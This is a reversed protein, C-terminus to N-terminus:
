RKNTIRRCWAAIRSIWDEVQADSVRTSPWRYVFAYCLWILLFTIAAGLIVDSPFHGGAMVRMLGVFGMAALSVGIAVARWSSSLLMSPVLAWTVIAVDGSVFSCNKPCDGKPNWWAGFHEPGGFEAVNLPRPRGWHEKLGVNVILGPILILTFIVFIAARVPILMRRRPFLFRLVVVLLAPIVLLLAGKVVLNQLQPFPPAIYWALMRGSPDKIPGAYFIRAIDLDLSPFFGFLGAAIAATLGALLLGIRNM